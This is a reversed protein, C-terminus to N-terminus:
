LEQMDLTVLNLFVGSLHTFDQDTTMLTLNLISATAALWLDNKGMNRATTRVQGSIIPLPRDKLKGQSFADIEGYRKVISEINLDIFTFDQTLTEIQNLRNDGWQNRLGISWLEAMSIISVFNNTQHLSFKDEIKFWRADKRLLYLLLNTDLLYNKM